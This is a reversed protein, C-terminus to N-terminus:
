KRACMEDMTHWADTHCNVNRKTTTTLKKSGMSKQQHIQWAKDEELFLTSAGVQMENLCWFHTSLVITM